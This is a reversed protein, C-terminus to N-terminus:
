LCLQWNKWSGKSCERQREVLSVWFDDIM